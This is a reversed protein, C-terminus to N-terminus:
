PASPSVPGSDGSTSVAVIGLALGILGAVRGLGGGGSFLGGGAGGGCCNSYGSFDGCGGCAAGACCGEGAIEGAYEIPPATYNDAFGGASASAYDVSGGVVANDQPSTLAVNFSTLPAYANAVTNAPISTQVIESDVLAPEEVAEFSVAAFGTQGAAIFDYVGPQIESIQFNGKDDVRAKAIEKDNQVIHISTGAVSQHPGWIPVISGVLKGDEILVRNAGDSPPTAQKNTSRALEIIQDAIHAPVRKELIEKVMTFKPSVAAVEMVTPADADGLVVNVGYAAFGSEGASVFSYAGEELGEVSFSGDSATVTQKAIKGDRAFYVKLGGLGVANRSKQEISVLRGKVVGDRDITITHSRVTGVIAGNSVTMAVPTAAVTIPSTDSMWQHASAAATAVLPLAFVYLGLKITSWFDKM